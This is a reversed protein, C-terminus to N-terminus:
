TFALSILLRQHFFARKTVTRHFRQINVIGNYELWVRIEATAFLNFTFAIVCIDTHLLVGLFVRNSTKM